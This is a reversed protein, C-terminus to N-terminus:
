DDRHCFHCINEGLRILVAITKQSMFLSIKKLIIICINLCMPMEPFQFLSYLIFLEGIPSDIGKFNETRSKKYIRRIFEIYKFIKM